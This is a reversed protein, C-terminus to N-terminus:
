ERTVVELIEPARRLMRPAVLWTTIFYITMGYVLSLPVSITWIWQANFFLPLIVGLLVPLLVIIAVILAVISIVGYLCGEEASMNGTTRFGRMSRPARMPYFTSTFNGIALIVGMGALGIILSPVLFAWGNVVFAIGFALILIEGLGLLFVALNKGWLIYRPQTPFLFLTTLSQREFGLTNFALTFLSLLVVNPVYFELWSQSWLPIGTSSGRPVVLVVILVIVSFLSRILLSKLQPDRWLYKLDKVMVASVVPPLLGALTSTQSSYTGQVTTAAHRHRVTRAQGASEGSSTLGREVLFQWFYLFLCSIVLLAALWVFALGWDGVAAQQIARAAMGSPLWQLFPSYAANTLSQAFGAALLPRLAFQCLYISSFLLVSVLAILERFRRSQLLPQLLAVILQSISVLQVYFVLMTLLAFLGLPITFAWGAVIAVFLILLAVVSLDLVTSFLLSLMLEGRTLPFLALKSLDLGENTNIQLLPLLVWLIYVGTLVLFLVEANAPAPLGRFAFFFSISIGGVFFLVFLALIIVSLIRSSGGRAFGRTFMKWRLWFLWRLKDAHINM